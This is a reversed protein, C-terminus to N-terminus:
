AANGIGADGNDDDFVVHGQHHTDGVMDVDEVRAAADGVARRGFDAGVRIDELGIEAVAIEDTPAAGLAMPRAALPHQIDGVQGCGGLFWSDSTVTPCISLPRVFWHGTM